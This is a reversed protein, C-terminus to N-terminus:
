ISITLRLECCQCSYEPARSHQSLNNTSPGQSWHNGLFEVESLPKRFIVAKFIQRETQDFNSSLQRSVDCSCSFDTLTIHSPANKCVAGTYQANYCLFRNFRKHFCTSEHILQIWILKTGEISMRIRATNESSTKTKNKLRITHDGKHKFTLRLLQFLFFHSPLKLFWGNAANTMTLNGNLQVYEISSQETKYQLSLNVRFSLFRRKM